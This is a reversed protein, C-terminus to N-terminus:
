WGQASTWVEQVTDEMGQISSDVVLFKHFYAAAICAHNPYIRVKQGMKLQPAASIDEDKWTLIGHEQSLRGVQWGNFGEVSVHNSFTSMQSNNWPMLIGWGTYAKCPERGLALGGAAILVETSGNVGREPYLSVVESLITMGLSSWSIQSRPRAHAALQQLDLVPYVGAHIEITFGAKRILSLTTILKQSHARAEEVTGTYEITDSHTSSFNGIAMATPSAGVSLTLVSTSSEFLSAARFLSELEDNLVNIAEDTRGGNYSHGAHSYLGLIKLDGNRQAQVVALALDRLAKSELTVGARHTGMDIKIMIRPPIGSEKKLQNVLPLQLVHDILLAVSGPGAVKAIKSFRTVASSSPPLGYLIDVTKGQARCEQLFPLIHEAEAATSVILRVDSSDGVQLRTLEATKHTKIHARFNFSLNHCQDLMEQCNRKVIALDITLAPCEVDQLKRGVISDGECVSSM